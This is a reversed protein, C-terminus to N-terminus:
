VGPVSQPLPNKPRARLKEEEAIKEAVTPLRKETRQEYAKKNDRQFDTLAYSFDRIIANRSADKALKLMRAKLFKVWSASLHDPVSEVLSQKEAVFLKLNLVSETQLILVETETSVPPKKGEEKLSSSLSLSLSPSNDQTIDSGLVTIATNDAKRKQKWRTEMGKKGAESKKKSWAKQKKIEEGLRKQFFTNKREDFQFCKKIRLEWLQEFDTVKMRAIDALETLDNPLQNDKDWCECILLWYAGIELTTMPITLRDGTFDGPYFQFAPSHAM